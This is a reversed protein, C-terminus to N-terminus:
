IRKLAAGNQPIDPAQIIRPSFILRIVVIEKIINTDPITRM